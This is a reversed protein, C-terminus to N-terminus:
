LLKEYPKTQLVIDESKLFTNINQILKIKGNVLEALYKLIRGSKGLGRATTNSLKESTV